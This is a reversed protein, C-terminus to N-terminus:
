IIDGKTKSEKQYPYFSMNFFLALIFLGDSISNKRRYPILNGIIMYVNWAM